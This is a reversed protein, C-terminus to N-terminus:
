QASRRRRRRPMGLHHLLVVVLQLWSIIDSLACCCIRCNSSATPRVQTPSSRVARPPPPMHTLVDLPVADRPAQKKFLNNIIITNHKHILCIKFHGFGHQASVGHGLSSPNVFTRAAGIQLAKKAQHRIMMERKEKKRM